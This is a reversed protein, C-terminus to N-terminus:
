KVPFGPPGFSQPEVSRDSSILNAENIAIEYDAKAQQLYGKMQHEKKDALLTDRIDAKVADYSKVQSARQDILRVLYKGSDTEIAESVKGLPVKGLSLEQALAEGRRIAAAPVGAINSNATLWPLKGGRNNTKLHGSSLAYQGFGQSPALYETADAIQNLTYQQSTDANRQLYIAVRFMSPKTYEALHNQYYRKVEEESVLTGEGVKKKLYKKYEFALLKRQNIMFGPSKNFGNEIAKKYLVQDEVMENLLKTKGEHSSSAPNASYFALAHDVEARTIVDDSIRAVWKLGEEGQQYPFEAIVEPKKSCATLLIGMAIILLPLKKM